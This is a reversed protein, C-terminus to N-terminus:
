FLNVFWLQLAIPHHRHYCLNLNEKILYLGGYKYTYCGLFNILLFLHMVFKATLYWIKVNADCISVFATM